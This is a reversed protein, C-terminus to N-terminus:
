ASKLSGYLAQTEPSPMTKLRAALLTRLREYAARAEQPIGARQFCLMLQRYLPECLEDVEIFRLYFETAIEPAGGEEWGRVVRALFRLLKARVRERCAIYSPQESEDPLFPGRYLALADEAFRRQRAEDIGAGATRLGTDFDDFLQEFAWTDVWVLERNLTL